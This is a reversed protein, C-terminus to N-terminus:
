FVWLQLKENVEDNVEFNVCLKTTKNKFKLERPIVPM